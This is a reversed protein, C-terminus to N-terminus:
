TCGLLKLVRAIRIVISLFVVSHCTGKATSGKPTRASTSQGIGVNRVRKPPRAVDELEAAMEKRKSKNGSDHRTSVTNGAAAPVTQIPPLPQLIAAPPAVPVPYVPLYTPNSPLRSNLPRFSAGNFNAAAIPPRMNGYAWPASVFPAFQSDVM